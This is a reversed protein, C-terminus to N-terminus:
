KNPLLLQRAVQKDNLIIYGLPDPWSTYIGFSWLIKVSAGNHQVSQEKSQQLMFFRGGYSFLDSLPFIIDYPNTSDNFKHPGLLGVIGEEVASLARIGLVRNKLRTFFGTDEAEYYRSSSFLSYGISTSVLLFKDEEKM